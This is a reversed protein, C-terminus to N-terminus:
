MRELRNRLRVPPLMPGRIQPECAAKHARMSVGRCTYKGFVVAERVAGAPDRSEFPVLVCWTAVLEVVCVGIHELLGDSGLMCNDALVKSHRLSCPV